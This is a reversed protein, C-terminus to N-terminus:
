KLDLLTGFIVKKIRKGNIVYFHINLFSQKVLRKFIGMYFDIKLGSLGFKKPSVLKWYDEGRPM